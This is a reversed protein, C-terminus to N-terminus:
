LVPVCAQTYEKELCLCSKWTCPMVAFCIWWSPEGVLEQVPPCSSACGGWGRGEAGARHQGQPWGNPNLMKCFARKKLLQRRRPLVFRPQVQSVTPGLGSFGECTCSSLRHLNFASHSHSPALSPALSRACGQMSGAGDRPFLSSSSCACVQGGRDFSPSFEKCPSLSCHSGNFGAAKTTVCGSITGGHRGSLCMQLSCTFMWLVCPNESSLSIGTRPTM